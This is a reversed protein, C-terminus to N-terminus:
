LGTPMRDAFDTASEFARGINLVGVEDLPRGIIQLGIPLGEGDFGCPVSLTPLGTLNGPASTRVYADIAESSSGDPWRVIPDAAPVAVAPLTPALVADLGQEFMERWGQQVLRRARVAKLYDTALLFEGAELLLRVDAEYLSAKDRLMDQHYASADAVLLAYEIPMYLEAHPLEVDRITAGADALTQVAADFAAEVDPQIRDFFYNTPVGFTRGSVEGTAESRYQPVEVQLSAPDRAGFGAMVQLLMATDEVTRAMPGAHDLAWSLSTIGYRSVLGYTPKLGTIGNISSPIRISGGTDTGLAGLIMRSAVAAGSGGSSGGPIRDPNWPNRTTPTIVGYAYEHTHTQGILTAGAARLRATVASDETAVVGERTKSSSTATVGATQALDKIGVPIGDLPGMPTSSAYRAEAAEAQTRATELTLAAFAGVETDHQAIQRSVSDFLEVPSLEKAAMKTSAQALTLDRAEM